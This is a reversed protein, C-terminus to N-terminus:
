FRDEDQATKKADPHKLNFMKPTDVISDLIQWFSVASFCEMGEIASGGGRLLTCLAVRKGDNRDQRCHLANSIGAAPYQM